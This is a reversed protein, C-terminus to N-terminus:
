RCACNAGGCACKYANMLLFDTHTHISGFACVHLRIHLSAAFGWRLRRWRELWGWGGGGEPGSHREHDQSPPPCSAQHQCAERADDWDDIPRLNLLRHCLRRWPYVRVHSRHRSLLPEAHPVGQVYVLARRHSTHTNQTCTHTNQIYESNMDCVCM